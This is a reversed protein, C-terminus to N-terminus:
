PQGVGNVGIEDPAKVRIHTYEGAGVAGNRSEKQWGSICGSICKLKLTFEFRGGLDLICEFAPTNAQAEQKPNPGLEMEASKPRAAPCATAEDCTVQLYEREYDPRSFVPSCLPLCSPRLQFEFGSLGLRWGCATYPALVM